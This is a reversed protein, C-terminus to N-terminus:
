YAGKTEPNKRILKGIHKEDEDDEKGQLWVGQLPHEVNRRPILNWNFFFDALLAGFYKVKCVESKRKELM